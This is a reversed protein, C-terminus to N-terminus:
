AFSTEWFVNVTPVALVWHDHLKWGPIGESCRARRSPPSVPRRASHLRLSTRDHSAMYPSGSGPLIGVPAMVVKVAELGTMQACDRTEEAGYRSAKEKAGYRSAEAPQLRRKPLSFLREELM